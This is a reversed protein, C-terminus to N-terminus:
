RKLRELMKKTFSEGKKTREHNVFATVNHQGNDNNYEVEVNGVKLTKEVYDYGDKAKGVILGAYKARSNSGSIVTAKTGNKTEISKWNQRNHEGEDWGGETVKINQSKKNGPRNYVYVWKGNKGRYRNIYKFSRHMLEDDSQAYKPIYKYTAM